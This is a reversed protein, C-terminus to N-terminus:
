RRRRGHRPPPQASRRLLALVQRPFALLLRLVARADRRVAEDPHLVAVLAAVGVLLLYGALVGAVIALIWGAYPALAAWLPNVLDHM